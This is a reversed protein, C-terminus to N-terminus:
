IEQILSPHTYVQCLNPTKPCFNSHHSTLQTLKERIWQFCVVPTFSKHYLGNHKYKHRIGVPSHKSLDVLGLLSSFVLTCSGSAVYLWIIWFTSMTSQDQTVLYISTWLDSNAKLLIQPSWANTEDMEKMLASLQIISFCIMYMQFSHGFFITLTCGLPFGATPAATTELISSVWLM